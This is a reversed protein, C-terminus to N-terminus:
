HAMKSEALHEEIRSLYIRYYKLVKNRFNITEDFPPIGNYQQVRHPGANYSALALSIDGDQMEMMQSFYKLGFQIAKCPDLRDDTDQKLLECKYRTYLQERREKCTLSEQMLDRAQEALELSNETNIELILDTSKRKLKRERGLLYGAEKFYSPLFINKMGLSKATRPMIQTLGVAGVHSVNRHDFNSEQRILALFLLLDIPNKSKQNKEFVNELISEFRSSSRGLAHKWLPWSAEGDKTSRRDLDFLSLAEESACNTFKDFVFNVFIINKSNLHPSEDLEQCRNFFIGLADRLNYSAKEIDEQLLRELMSSCIGKNLRDDVEVTLNLRYAMMHEWALRIIQNHRIALKEVNKLHEGPYKENKRTTMAETAKEFIKEAEKYLAIAKLYDQTILVNLGFSKGLEPSIRLIGEEGRYSGDTLSTKHYDLNFKTIYKGLLTLDSLSPSPM